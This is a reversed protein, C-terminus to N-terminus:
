LDVRHDMRGLAFRSTTPATALNMGHVRGVGQHGPAQRFTAQALVLVEDVGASRERMQGARIIPDVLVRRETRTEQCLPVGVHHSFQIM